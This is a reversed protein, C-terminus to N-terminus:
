HGIRRFDAFMPGFSPYTCGVSLMKTSTKLDQPAALIKEKEDDVVKAPFSSRPCPIQRSPEARNCLADPRDPEIVASSEVQTKFNLM